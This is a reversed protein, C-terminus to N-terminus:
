TDTKAGNQGVQWPWRSTQLYHQYADRARRERATRPPLGLAARLKSLSVRYRQHGGLLRAVSARDPKVQESKLETRLAKVAGADVLRGIPTQEHRLVGSM